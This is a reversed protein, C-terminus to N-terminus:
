AYWQIQKSFQKGTSLVANNRLTKIQLLTCLHQIIASMFNSGQDSLIERPIGTRSFIEILANAVTEANITKLPIAEPYKTGYDCVVLIYRNGQDSRVLPGIIDM